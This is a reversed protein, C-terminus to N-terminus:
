MSMRPIAGCVITPGHQEGGDKHYAIVHPDHMLVMTAYAVTTTMTGTGDSGPAIEQLPVVVSGINECTGNHIHGAHAGAPLNMLRVMVQTQRERPTLVAQGTVGSNNLPVFSVMQVQSTDMVPLDGTPAAPDVVVAAPPAVDVVEGIDPERGLPGEDLADDDECAALALPLAALMWLQKLKM